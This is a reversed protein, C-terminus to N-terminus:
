FYTYIIINKLHGSSVLLSTAYNKYHLPNLCKKGLTTPYFFLEQKKKKM